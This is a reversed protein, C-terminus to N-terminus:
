RVKRHPVPAVADHEASNYKQGNQFSENETCGIEFTGLIIQKKLLFFCRFYVYKFFEMREM